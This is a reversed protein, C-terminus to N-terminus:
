VDEEEDAYYRTVTQQLDFAMLAGVVFEADPLAQRWQEFPLRIGYPDEIRKMKRAALCRALFEDLRM